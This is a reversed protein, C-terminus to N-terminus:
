FRNKRRRMEAFVEVDLAGDMGLVQKLEPDGARLFPNTAREVSVTSPVTQLDVDVLARIEQLRERVRTNGPELTVAFEYDELAYDHGCYVLTEPPLSAIRSLSAWMVDPARTFMRGCGGVFLTDGTFVEGPAGDEPGFVYCVSDASHGPTSMATVTFPGVHLVMEGANAVRPVGVLECGTAAVLQNVGATHDFHDHTLLVAILVSGTERLRRMIPSAEGPDIVLAEGGDEVVYTFNDSIIPIATTVRMIAM